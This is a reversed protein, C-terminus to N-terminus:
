SLQPSVNETSRRFRVSAFILALIVAGNSWFAREVGILDSVLGIGLSSLQGGIAVSAIMVMSSTATRDPEADTAQGLFILFLAGIGGGLLAGGLLLPVPGGAMVLLVFGLTTAALLFRLTLGSQM